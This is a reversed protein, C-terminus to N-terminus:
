RWSDIWSCKFIKRNNKSSEKNIFHNIMRFNHFIGETAIAEKKDDKLEKPLQFVLRVNESMPIDYAVQELFDLLDIELDRRKIPTADWSNFIEDYSDLSVQVLYCNDNKDYSYIQSLKLAKKKNKLIFGVKL